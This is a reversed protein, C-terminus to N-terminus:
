ASIAMRYDYKGIDKAIISGIYAVVGPNVSNGIMVLKKSDSLGAPFRFDKGFGQLELCEAVSLKRVGFNDIVFPVNHGGLGMNAALTPCVGEPNARVEARRIQFLRNKGVRDAERLIMICHKNGPELYLRDEMKQTRDILEWLTQKSYGTKVSDLQFYNRRFYDRHYAVIFLRERSQPTGTVERSNLLFYNRSSVWYGGKRLTSLIQTMWQGGNRRLLNPVNELFLVKPPSKMCSIAGMMEFFLSGRHLDDFGDQAGAVSFPQCPFGGSVVDIDDLEAMSNRCKSDAISGLLNKASPHVHNLTKVCSEEFDNTLVTEFGVKELGVSFGGM